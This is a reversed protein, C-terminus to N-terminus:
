HRPPYIGQYAIFYTITLYPQLNNHAFSTGANETSGSVEISTGNMTAAPTETSYRQTSDKSANISFSNNIPTTSNAKTDKCKLVGWAAGEAINHKHAPLENANLVITDNGSKQGMLRPTLGSGQGQGIACRGRLDPLMFNTTDGGYTNGIVSYLESYKSVKLSRGDCQLWGVTEYNFGMARIEGIFQDSM